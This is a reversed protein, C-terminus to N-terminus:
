KLTNQVDNVSYNLSKFTKRQKEKEYKRRLIALLKRYLYNQHENFLKQKSM